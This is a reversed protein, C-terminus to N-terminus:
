VGLTYCATRHRESVASQVNRLLQIICANDVRVHARFRLGEQLCVGAREFGALRDLAPRDSFDRARAPCTLSLTHIASCPSTYTHKRHAEFM